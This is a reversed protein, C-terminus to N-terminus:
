LDIERRRTKKSRHLDVGELPASELYKKFDFLEEGALASELISRIRDADVGGSRLMSAVSRLLEKDESPVNVELRIWGKEAQRKRHTKIAKNQASTM